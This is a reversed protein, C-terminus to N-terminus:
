DEVDETPKQAGSVYTPGRVDPHYPADPEPPEKPYPSPGM